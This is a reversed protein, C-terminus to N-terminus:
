LGLFSTQYIYIYIHVHDIDDTKPWKYVTQGGGTAKHLFKMTYFNEKECKKLVRGVYFRDVYHVAYLKECEVNIFMPVTPPTTDTESKRNEKGAHPQFGNTKTQFADSTYAYKVVNQSVSQVFHIKRLEPLSVTSSGSKKDFEEM